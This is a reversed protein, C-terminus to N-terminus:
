FNATSFHDSTCVIVVVLRTKVCYFSSFLFVGSRFFFGFLFLFWVSLLLVVLTNMIIESYNNIYIHRRKKLSHSFSVYRLVYGDRNRRQFFDHWIYPETLSNLRIFKAENLVLLSVATNYATPWIGQRWRIFGTIKIWQNNPTKRRILLIEAFFGIIFGIM